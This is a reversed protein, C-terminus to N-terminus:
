EACHPDALIGEGSYCRQMVGADSQDVDNDGDFDMGECGAAPTIAPGSACAEFADLDDQDVDGDCDYDAPCPERGASFRFGLRESNTYGTTGKDKIIFQAEWICHAPEFAPDSTDLLWLPHVHAGPDGGILLDPPMRDNVIQYSPTEVVLLPVDILVFEIWIVAGPEMPYCDEEVSPAVVFSFGPISASYGQIPGGPPIEALVTLTGNQVGDAHLFKLQGTASRGILMHAEHASLPTVAILLMSPILLAPIVFRNQM